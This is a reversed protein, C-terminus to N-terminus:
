FRGACSYDIDRQPDLYYQENEKNYSIFQGSATKRIEKVLLWYFSIISLRQKTFTRLLIRWNWAFEEVM